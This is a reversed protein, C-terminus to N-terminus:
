SITMDATRKRGANDKQLGTKPRPGLDDFWYEQVALVTEARCVVLDSQPQYASLPFMDFDFVKRYESVTM